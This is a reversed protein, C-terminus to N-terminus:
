ICTNFVEGNIEFADLVFKTFKPYQKRLYAISKEGCGSVKVQESKGTVYSTVTYISKVM